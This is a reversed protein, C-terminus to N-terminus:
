LVEQSAAFCRFVTKPGDKISRTGNSEVAMSKCENAGPCTKGAPLRVTVVRKDLKANGKGFKLKTM